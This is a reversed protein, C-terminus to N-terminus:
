WTVYIKLRDYRLEFGSKSLEAVIRDCFADTYDARDIALYRVGNEAKTRINEYIANMVRVFYNDNEIALSRAYEASFRKLKM